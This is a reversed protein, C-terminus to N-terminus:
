RQNSGRGRGANGDKAGPTGRGRGAGTGVGCAGLTDGHAMHANVAPQPLTLTRANAQNGPPIHCVAVKQQGNGQAYAGAPVTVIAVLLALAYCYLSKMGRPCLLQGAV